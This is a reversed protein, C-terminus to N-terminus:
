DTPSLAVANSFCGSAPVYHEYAFYVRGLEAWAQAKVHTPPNTSTTLDLAARISQVHERVATQSSSFDPHAVPGFTIGAPIVTRHKHRYILWGGALLGILLLGVLLLRLAFRM